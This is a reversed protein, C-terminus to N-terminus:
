SSFLNTLSTISQPKWGGFWGKKMSCPEEVVLDKGSLITAPNDIVLKRAEAVSGLYQAAVEMADRLEPRRGNANHADSAIVHVLQRQFMKEVFRFVEGGFGGTVSMSTVQCLAGMRVWDLLLGIDDRVAAYREPHAIVPVYGNLRLNYLEEKVLDKSVAAGIEMLVYRGNNNITCIDNQTLHAVMEGCAYVESGPVVTLPIGEKELLDQLKAVKPLVTEPPNHHWGNLTHPTAVMVKIGDAVALRAMVLAIAENAAGDDVGPLIHSHLDIM